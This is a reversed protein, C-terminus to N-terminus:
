KFCNSFKVVRQMIANYQYHAENDYKECLKQYLLLNSDDKKGNIKFGLEKLRNAAIFVALAFITNERGNIIDNLGKGIIEWGPFNKYENKAANIFMNLLYIRTM